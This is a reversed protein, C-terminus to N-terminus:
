RSWPDLVPSNVKGEEPSTSSSGKKSNKEEFDSSGCANCKAPRYPWSAGCSSCAYCAESQYLYVTTDSSFSDESILAMRCGDRSVQRAKLKTEECKINMVERGTLDFIMLAKDETTIIMGNQEHVHCRGGPITFRDTMYGEPSMVYIDTTDRNDYIMVIQGSNKVKVIRTVIGPSGAIKGLPYSWLAKGNYDKVRIVERGYKRGKEIYCFSDDWAADSRWKIKKRHARGKKVHLIRAAEMDHFVALFNDRNIGEFLSLSYDKRDYLRQLGNRYRYLKVEERTDSALILVRSGDLVLALEKDKNLFTGSIREDNDGLSKEWKLGRGTEYLQLRDFSYVVAYRGSDSFGAEVRWSFDMSVPASWTCNGDFDILELNSGALRVIENDETITFEDGRFTYTNDFHM